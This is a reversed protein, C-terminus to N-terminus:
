FAPHPHLTLMGQLLTPNRGACQYLPSGWSGSAKATSDGWKLVPWPTGHYPSGM